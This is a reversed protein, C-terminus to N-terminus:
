RLLSPWNLIMEISSDRSDDGGGILLFRKGDRSVDYLARESDISLNAAFLPDPKGLQLEGQTSIPVAMLSGSGSVYFLEKGDSRWRPDRGGTASVRHRQQGSPFSTLYIEATGSENSSFALWRGDPSFRPLPGHSDSPGLTHWAESKNTGKDGSQLDVWAAESHASLMALEGVAYRGDPSVDLVSSDSPLDRIVEEVGRPILSRRFLKWQRIDAYYISKSDSSWMLSAAHRADSVLEFLGDPVSAVWVTFQGSVPDHKSAAVFQGNRSLAVAWFEATGGLSGIKNGARDRWVLGTHLEETRMVLVGTDSTSLMGGRNVLRRPQGRLDGSHIDFPQAVIEGAQQSLFFYDQTDPDRGLAFQGEAVLIKKRRETRDISDLYIGVRDPNDNRALYLFRNGDPLFLPFRHSNEGATADLQNVETVAGGSDPVQFIAHSNLGFIITGRSGWSGGRAKQAECLVVVSGGSAPVRKLKGEAFFAIHQSDPSWFPGSGDQTQEMPILRNANLPRIYLRDGTATKLSVVLASGDPAMVPPGLVRSPDDTGVGQPIPVSVNIAEARPKQRRINSVWLGGSVITAVGAGWVFRRRSVPPPEIVSTAEMEVAPELQLSSDSSTSESQGTELSPATVLATKHTFTGIFRYGQRPLTEVFRPDSPRDDLVQRIQSICYNLSQEVDVHVGNGWIHDALTERSVIKPACDILFALVRLPQPYLKLAIGNRSLVGREADLEYDGFQVSRLPEDETVDIM